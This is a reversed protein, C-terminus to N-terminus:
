LRIGEASIRAHCQEDEIPWGDFRTSTARGFDVGLEHLVPFAPNRGM